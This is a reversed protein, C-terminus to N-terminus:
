LDPVVELRQKLVLIALVAFAPVRGVVVSGVTLPLVAVASDSVGSLLESVEDLVRDRVEVVPVDRV